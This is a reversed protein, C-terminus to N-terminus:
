QIHLRKTASPRLTGGQFSLQPNSFTFSALLAPPLSRPLKFKDLPQVRHGESTPDRAARWGQSRMSDECRDEIVRELCRSLCGGLHLRQLPIPGCVSLLRGM